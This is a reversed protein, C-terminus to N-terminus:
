GHRECGTEYDGGYVHNVELKFACSRSRYAEQIKVYPDNNQRAIWPSSNKMSTHM